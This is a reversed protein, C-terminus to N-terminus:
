EIARYRDNVSHGSPSSLDMILQWQNPRGKKPIVGLPSFHVRLRRAQSPSGILFVHKADVEKTIYATVEQPHEETSLLNFRAAKLPKSVNPRFGICFGRELRKHNSRCIAPGSILGTSGELVEGQGTVHHCLVSGSTRTIRRVAPQLLQQARETQWHGATCAPQLRCLLSLWMAVIVAPVM